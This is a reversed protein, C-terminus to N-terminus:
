LERVVTWPMWEGTLTSPGSICPSRRPAAGPDHMMGLHQAITTEKGYRAVKTRKAPQPQVFGTEREQLQTPRTMSARAEYTSRLGRKVVDQEQRWVKEAINAEKFWM